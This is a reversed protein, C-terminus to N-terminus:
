RTSKRHRKRLISAILWGLLVMAGMLYLDPEAVQRAGGVALNSVHLPLPLPQDVDQGGEKNRVSEDVAIFATYPTLLHYALGLATIEQRANDAAMWTEADALRSIRQRAWLRPLAPNDAAPTPPHIGVRQVFPGTGSLGSVTIVGSPRGRWKGSVVLPRGAFLDGFVPPEVDYVDIDQYEIRIRSLLPAEITTKFRAATAAADGPDTVVFPEGHGARAMGEILHRNVSTGIGFASVNTQNLHDRILSFVEKEVAIYGDTVVTVMRAQGPTRPLSLAKQLAPLLQTGGGGSEQDILRRAHALNAPSAPLSQAALLKAGGAFLVVNFTDVPRLDHILNGLLAKATDLPFGNMSGSVDVVFIFERPPISAPAVRRPPQIMMMFVNEERGEHLMLGTQIREGALRYRLIFDRNNGHIESEGLTVHTESQGQWAIQTDHSPCHLDRIALPSSLHIALEFRSAPPSGTKLYPNKLWLDHDGAGKEPVTSYRPGVVTPYIFEYIGGTPVLLETYHLEIEIRDGPLINAVQMSFVNARAETLLSASKGAHKAANFEKKATQRANMRAVVVQEGVQMRMGHVATRTSAPFVYRAHIPRPGENAYQQTVFVDAIVGNIAARVRTSKLPLHDVARTGDMIHFYPSLTRNEGAPPDEAATALTATLLLWGIIIVPIGTKERMM